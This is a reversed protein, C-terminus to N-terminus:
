LVRETADSGRSHGGEACRVGVGVTIFWTSKVTDSSNVRTTITHYHFSRFEGLFVSLHVALIVNFFM